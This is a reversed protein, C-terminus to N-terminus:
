MESLENQLPLPTTFGVPKVAVQVERDQKPMLNEAFIVSLIDNLQLLVCIVIHFGISLIITSKSTSTRDTKTSGVQSSCALIEGLSKLDRTNALKVVTAPQGSNRVGVTVVPFKKGNLKRAFIYAPYKWSVKTYGLSYSEFRYCLLRSAQEVLQAIETRINCDLSHMCEIHKM